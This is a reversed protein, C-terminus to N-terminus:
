NTKVLTLTSALGITEEWFSSGMRLEMETIRDKGMGERGGGELRKSWGEGKEVLVCLPSYMKEVINM